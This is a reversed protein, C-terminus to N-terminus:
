SHRPNRHPELLIDGSRPLSSCSPPLSATGSAALLLFLLCVTSPSSLPQELTRLGRAGTNNVPCSAFHSFNRRSAGTERLCRQNIGRVRAAACRATWPALSRVINVLKEASNRVESTRRSSYDRSRAFAFSEGKDDETLSKFTYVPHENM